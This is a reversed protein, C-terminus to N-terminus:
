YPPPELVAQELHALRAHMASLETRELEPDYTHEEATDISTDMRARKEAFPSRSRTDEEYREGARARAFIGMAARAKKSPVMSMKQDRQARVHPHATERYCFPDVRVPTITAARRRRRHICLLACLACALLVAGATTAGAIIATRPFTGQHTSSSSTTEAAASAALPTSPPSPSPTPGPNQGSSVTSTSSSGASRESTSSQLASIAEVSTESDSGSGVIAVQTPSSSDGQSTVVAYDFLAEQQVTSTTAAVFNWSLVHVKDEALGTAAFFLSDYVFPTSGTYRYTQRTKGLTFEIQPQLGAQDIGYIYVASGSFTFTGATASSLQTAFIGRHATRELAHAMDPVPACGTCPHGPDITVWHGTYRFSGAADDYTTNVYAAAHIAIPFFVLPTLFSGRLFM